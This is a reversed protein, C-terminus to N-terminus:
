PLFAYLFIPVYSVSIFIGTAMAVVSILAIFALILPLLYIERLVTQLLGTFLPQFSFAFCRVLALWCLSFVVKLFLFDDLKEQFWVPFLCGFSHTKRLM